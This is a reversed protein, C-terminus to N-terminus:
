NVTLPVSITHTMPTTATTAGTVTVQYTGPTMKNANSSDTSGGGCSVSFLTVGILLVVLLFVLRRRKGMATMWIIFFPLVSTFIARPGSRNEAGRTPPTGASPITVTVAVSPISTGDMILTTPAITCTAGGPISCTFNLTEKFGNLPAAFVNFTVTGGTSSTSIAKSSSSLGFDSSGSAGPASGTGTLSMQQPSNAAIGTVTLGMSQVGAAVPAFTVQVTCNANPALTAPSMPCNNTQKFDGGMTLSSITLPFSSSTNTITVTQVASTTSTQQNGFALTAPTLQLVGQTMIGTGSLAVIQPSNASNDVIQLVDSRSGVLTPKFTITITCHDKAGGTPSLQSGCDSSQLYDGTTGVISISSISLTASGTNQLTVTKTASPTGVNQSGYSLSAPSVSARPFSAGNILAVFADTTGGAYLPQATASTIPFDVSQTTGAVYINGTGNKDLTIASAQESSAGGMYAMMTLASANPTIRAIFADQPGLLATEANGLSDTLPNTIPLDSSTTSGAIYASGGTDIAIALGQEDGKGGLYTGYDFASAPKNLKIVFADQGGISSPNATGTTTLIGGTATGVIYADGSTDVAIGNAANIRQGPNTTATTGLSTAYIQDGNLGSLKLVWPGTKGYNIGKYGGYFLYPTLDATNTGGVAFVDGVPDIAVSYAETTAYTIAAPADGLDFWVFGGIDPIGAKKGISGCPWNLGASTGSIYLSSAPEALLVQPKDGSGTGCNPTAITIAGVPVQVGIAYSPSNLSPWTAEPPLPQGGFITSFFYYIKTADPTAPCNTGYGCADSLSAARPSLPSAGPLSPPAIHLGFDLKTVFAVCPEVKAQISDYAPFDSSCTQGVVSVNLQSDVVIGYGQDINSGGLYTERLLTGNPNLITVFADSDGGNYASTRNSPNPVTLPLDWFNTTGVVYARGTADIAISSASATANPPNPLQGAIFTTYVVATGTPDLKTVYADCAGLAGAFNTGSPNPSSVIFNSSCTEGAIYSNGATDVAIGNATDAQSGGLFTAYTLVPDIVLEKSHDYRGLMMRAKGDRDLVYAVNVATREGAILQYAYPKALRVQHGGVEAVLDGESSVSLHQAGTFALAIAAPDSKPAVVFDFELHRQDGYYLVDVGRYVDRARVKAFTPVGLRWDRPDRGRYYNVVGPLPEIGEAVAAQNSGDLSYRLVKLVGSSKDRVAVYSDIAGVSVTYGGSHAVFQGAQSPEFSLPLKAATVQTHIIPSQANEALLFHPFVFFLAVLVTWVKFKM